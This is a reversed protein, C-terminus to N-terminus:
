KNVYIDLPLRWFLFVLFNWFLALAGKVGGGGLGTWFKKTQFLKDSSLGGAGKWYNPVKVEILDETMNFFNIYWISLEQYKIPIKDKM